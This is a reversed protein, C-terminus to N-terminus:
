ISHGNMIIASLNRGDNILTGRSTVLLRCRDFSEMATQNLKCVGHVSVVRRLYRITESSTDSDWKGNKGNTPRWRRDIEAPRTTNNGANPYAKRPPM